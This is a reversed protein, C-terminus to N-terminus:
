LLESCNALVQVVAVGLDPSARAGIAVAAAFDEVVQTLPLLVPVPLVQGANLPTPWGALGQYRTLKHEALDDYVVIEGDTRAALRRCKPMLNGIIITAEVGAFGLCLEINEGEGAETRGVEIRRAALESPSAGLLDLCMAVDHAGWDWLVPAERRFPGMNGARTALARIAGSAQLEEKLRRYAPHFLHTHDVMMFGNRKAVLDRLFNAEALNMTLPKEVLVPLGAEVAAAAMAAHLAPPTAIIVADILARDLILRWDREIRCDAQVLLRSAPNGSALAALRVGQVSAITRIFNRGWRGAGILGLRLPEGM